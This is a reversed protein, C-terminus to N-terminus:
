RADLPALDAQKDPFICPNKRFGRDLARVCGSKGFSKLLKRGERNKRPVPFYCPTRRYIEQIEGRAGNVLFCFTLLFCFAV